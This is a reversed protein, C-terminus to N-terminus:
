LFVIEDLEFEGVIGFGIRVGRFRVYGVVFVSEDIWYSVFDECVICMNNCNM